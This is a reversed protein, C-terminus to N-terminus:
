GIKRIHDPGHVLELEELEEPVDQYQPLQRERREIAERAPALQAAERRAASALALAVDKEALALQFFANDFGRGLLLKALGAYAAGSSKQV